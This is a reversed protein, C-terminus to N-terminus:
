IAANDSDGRGKAIAGGLAGVLMAVWSFMVFSVLVGGAATFENSAIFAIGKVLVHDAFMVIAGAFAAGWMGFSGKAALYGAAAVLAIRVAFFLGDLVPANTVVSSSALGAIAWLVALVLPIRVLYVLSLIGRKAAM